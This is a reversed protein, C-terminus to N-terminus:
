GLIEKIRRIANAIELAKAELDTLRPMARANTPIPAEFAEDPLGAAKAPSKKKTRKKALRHERTYNGTCIKCVSKRGNRGNKDKYFEDLGKTEGCKSCKKQNDSVPNERNRLNRDEKMDEEWQNCKECATPRILMPTGPPEEGFRPRERVSKCTEASIRGLPCEFTNQEMWTDTDTQKEAKGM